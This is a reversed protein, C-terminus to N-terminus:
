LSGHGLGFYTMKDLGGGGDGRKLTADIQFQEIHRTALSDSISFEGAADAAATGLGNPLCQPAIRKRWMNGTMTDHSSIAGEATEIALALALLDLTLM